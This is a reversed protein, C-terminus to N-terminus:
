RHKSFDKRKYVFDIDDKLVLVDNSLKLLRKYVDEQMEFEDYNEHMDQKVDYILNNLDTKAIAVSCSSRSCLSNSIAVLRNYIDKRKM